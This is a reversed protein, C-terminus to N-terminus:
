PHGEAKAKQLFEDTLPPGSYAQHLAKIEALLTDPDVRKSRLSKELCFLIESNISRRNIQASHKLLNYLDPPINKVTITPM